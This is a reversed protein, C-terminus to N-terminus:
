PGIDTFSLPTLLGLHAVALPKFSVEREIVIYHPLDDLLQQHSRPKLIGKKELPRLLAQIGDLDGPEATRIGQYFDSSVMAANTAGEPSYLELLLAGDISADVLHARRVGAGCCACATCLAMPLGLSQWRDFDLDDGGSAGNASQAADGPKPGGDMVSGSREAALANLRRQADSLPTWSGLGMDVQGEPLTLCIIKDAGLDVAARTAVTWVDCNLVEGAASYGLNSLLVMYGAALQRNVAEVEIFRVMGTYGLDVGNVVGKRKAAVYNGSVTQVQPGMHQSNDVGKTHRRVMPVSLGKSLRAEFEMRAAGAAQVAADMTAADTVRQGEVYRVEGGAARVTSDIGQRAGLVVVLRVGLVHLLAVDELVPWLIDRRTVVESPIVLVFTRGRHGEIYPSATRFHNVFDSYNEPPPDLLQSGDFTVGPTTRQQQQPDIGLFSHPQAPSPPSRTPPEATTSSAYLSEGRAAVHICRASKRSLNVFGPQLNWRCGSGQTVPKVAFRGSRGPLQKAAPLQWRGM